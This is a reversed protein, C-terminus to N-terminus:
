SKKFNRVTALYQSLFPLGAIAPIFYRSTCLLGLAAGTAENFYPQYFLILAADRTGVGAFTLPMLGALIALPSLALNALFPTWAKLALIFFWIQLLHCFWLFISTLCIKALQRRDSWFYEHMEGWSFRMKDLKVRIKKPAIRGALNFFLHAFKRSSLLLIGFIFSSSVAVTMVWFLFNKDPYLCLGFICWLLLSLLDCAKEFVVLSLALSGSLHGRDRMFYAKALDGMKSPLVMNLVSAALILRNAEAFRLRVGSPTLEQLRWSTILVLPILMAFSAITWARDSNEFVRILGLFDIKTYIITLIILSVAISILRKM